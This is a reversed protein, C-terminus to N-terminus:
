LAELAREWEAVRRAWVVPYGDVNFPPPALPDRPGTANRAAKRFRHTPGMATANTAIPLCFGVFFYLLDGWFLM